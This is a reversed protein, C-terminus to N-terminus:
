HFAATDPQRDPREATDTSIQLLSSTEREATETSIQLLPTSIEGSQLSSAVRLLCSMVMDKARAAELNHDRRRLQLTIQDLSTQLLESALVPLPGLRNQEGHGLPHQPPPGLAAPGQALHQHYLELLKQELYRNLQSNSLPREPALLSPGDRPGLTPDQAVEEEEEGEGDEQKGTRGLCSVLPEPEFDQCLSAQVDGADCNLMCIDYMMCVDCSSKNKQIYNMQM